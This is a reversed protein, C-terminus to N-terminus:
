QIFKILADIIDELYMNNPDDVGFYPIQKVLEDFKDDQGDLSENLANKIVKSVRVMIKNYLDKEKM